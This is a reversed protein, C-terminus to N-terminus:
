NLVAYGRNRLCNNVVRHRENVGRGTGKAAGTVAGAGALRGATESDGVAAGVAAGIAAGAVAGVGAKRAVMVQDAYAKCQSLDREYQVMDVGRSDIIPRHACGAAIIISMILWLYRM